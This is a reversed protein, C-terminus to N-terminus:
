FLEYKDMLELKRDEKRRRDARSEETPVIERRAALTADYREIEAVLTILEKLEAKARTFM